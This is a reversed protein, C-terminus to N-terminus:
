NSLNQVKKFFLDRFDQLTNCPTNGKCDSVAAYYIIRFPSKGLATQKFDSNFGCKIFCIEVKITLFRMAIMTANATVM